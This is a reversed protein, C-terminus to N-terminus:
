YSRSTGQNHRLFSTASGSPGGWHHRCIYYGNDAEIISSIQGEELASVADVVPSLGVKLIYTGIKAMDATYDRSYAQMLKEFEEGKNIKDLVTQIM